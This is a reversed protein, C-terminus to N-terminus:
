IDKLHNYIENFEEVSNFRLCDRVKYKTCVLQFLTLEKLEKQNPHYAISRKLLQIEREFEPLYGQNIRDCFETESMLQILQLATERRKKQDGNETAKLYCNEIEHINHTAFYPEGRMVAKECEYIALQELSTILIRINTDHLLVIHVINDINNSGVHTTLKLEIMSDYSVMVGDVSEFEYRFPKLEKNLLITQLEISLDPHKCVEHIWIPQAPREEIRDVLDEHIQTFDQNAMQSEREQTRKTPTIIGGCKLNERATKAEEYSNFFLTTNTDLYIAFLYTAATFETM